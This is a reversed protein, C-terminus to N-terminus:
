KIVGGNGDEKLPFTKKYKEISDEIAMSSRIFQQMMGNSRLAELAGCEASAKIRVDVSASENASVNRLYEIGDDLYEDPEPYKNKKLYELFVESLQKKGNLLFLSWAWISNKVWILFYVAYLALLIGLFVLFNKDTSFTTLLGAVILDPIFSILVALTILRNTKSKIQM